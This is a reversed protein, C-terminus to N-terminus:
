YIQLASYDMIIRLFNQVLVEYCQNMDTTHLLVPAKYYSNASSYCFQLVVKCYSTTSSEYKKTRLLLLLVSHIQLLVKNYPTSSSYYKITSSYYKTIRLLEQIPAKYNSNTSSYYKTIRLLIPSASQM